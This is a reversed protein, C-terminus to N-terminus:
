GHADEGSAGRADEDGVEAALLSLLAKEAAANGEALESRAEADAPSGPAGKPASKAGPHTADHVQKLHRISVRTYIATTSTEAHGLIEQIHRIDAGGAVDDLASSARPRPAAAPAPSRSVDAWDDARRPM